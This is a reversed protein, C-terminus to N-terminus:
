CHSNAPRKPNQAEFECPKRTLAEFRRDELGAVYNSNSLIYPSVIGVRLNAMYPNQPAMRMMPMSCREMAKSCSRLSGKGGVLRSSMPRASSRFFDALHGWWMLEKYEQILWCTTIGLAKEGYRRSSRNPHVMGVRRSDKTTREYQITLRM